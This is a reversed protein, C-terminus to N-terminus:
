GVCVLGVLMGGCAMLRRRYEGVESECGVDGRLLLLPLLLLGCDGGRCLGRLVLVTFVAAVPVRFHGGARVLSGAWGDAGGSILEM